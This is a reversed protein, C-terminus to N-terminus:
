YRLDQILSNILEFAEKADPFEEIKKTRRTICQLKVILQEHVDEAHTKSRIQGFTDGSFKYSEENNLDEILQSISINVKQVIPKM